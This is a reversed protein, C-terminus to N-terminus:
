REKYILMEGRMSSRFENRIKERNEAMWRAVGNRVDNIFTIDDVLILGGVKVAKYALDLDHIVGEVSHDGDVHFFDINNIGLDDVSQTDVLEITCAYPSLITDAWLTFSGDEGGEGGHQGNNADFGFYGAKPCAQLFSWASYGARVGIEAIRKPKHEKCIEYKVKYYNKFNDTLLDNYIPDEPYIIEKKFEFNM